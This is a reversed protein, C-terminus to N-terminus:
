IMGTMYEFYEDAVREMSFVQARARQLEAPPPFDLTEQMAKAMTQADGVPVLRGYKGDDLVERPGSPCDTSVIPLGCALAEPLVNVFGEWHSAVALLSAQAMYAFPNAVFGPMAVEQSLGLAEVQKQLNQREEGEGLILLRAPMQSRLSSFADLLVPYGKQAALRGVALIVPPQGKKFWPHVLPAASLRTIEELDISNHIARIRQRPIGSVRALDDAVGASVAVIGDARPYALRVLWPRLRDGLCTANLATASLHNHEEVILCAPSGTLERALVALFNIHTQASFLVDPRAARLYRSLPRLATLARRNKLDVIHLDPPLNHFAPDAADLLIMEVRLGRELFVRSLNIM